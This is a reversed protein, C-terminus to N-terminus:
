SDERVSDLLERFEGLWPEYRRWRAASTRYIPQRAQWSSATRISRETRHFALCADNWELGCFNLVTRTTTEQDGILQEYDIELFRDGPLVRRWHAMLRRYEKYFFVIASRDYTFDHDKAFRTFYISLCTDVPNRRCHIIRAKPFLIHILGLLLFNHPMKDTVRSAESSIGNLTDLYDRITEKAAALALKGGSGIRLKLRRANWFPLEDGARVDPHSALIQEILTTGSRMMGVILVPRESSSGWQRLREIEDPGFDAIMNSTLAVHIQQEAVTSQVRRHPPRAALWARNGSDYM